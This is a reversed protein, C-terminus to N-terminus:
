DPNRNGWLVDFLDSRGKFSRDRWARLQNLDSMLDVDGALDRRNFSDALHGPTMADLGDDIARMRERLKIELLFIEVAVVEARRQVFPKIRGFPGAQQEHLAVLNGLNPRQERGLVLLFAVDTLEFLNARM